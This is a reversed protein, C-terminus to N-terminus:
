KYSLQFKHLTHGNDVVLLQNPAKDYAMCSPNTLLNKSKYVFRENSLDHQVVSIANPSNYCVFINDHEDTTLGVVGGSLAQQSTILKGKSGDLLLLKAKRDDHRDALVLRVGKTTNFSTICTPNRFLPEGDKGAQRSWVPWPRHKMFQRLSPPDTDCLAYIKEDCSTIAIVKSDTISKIKRDDNTEKFKDGNTEFFHFNYLHEDRRGDHGIVVFGNDKYATTDLPTTWGHCDTYHTMDQPFMLTTRFGGSIVKQGDGLVAIANFAAVSDFYGKYPELSVIKYPKAVIESM